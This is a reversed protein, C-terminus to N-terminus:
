GRLNRRIFPLWWCYRYRHFGADKMEQIAEPITYGQEWCRFAAAIVGTRDVGDKCHFYVPGHNRNHRILQIAVEMQELSPPALPNLPCKIHPIGYSAALLGEVGPQRTWREYYGSELDIIASAEIRALWSVTALTPRPGRYVNPGLQIIRGM